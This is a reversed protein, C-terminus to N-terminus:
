VSFRISLIDGDKVTYNKGELRLLGKEKLAKESGYAMLDDYTFCEARIFGRALNSHIVAAANVATDGKHITWARVEDPGVTFFTLYGLVNYALMTLRDRASAQIHMDDMFAKAEETSLHNLEMEFRGAFEIVRHDKTLHTLLDHHKGFNTEDSNLIVLMPKLTLFQFGRLLKQHEPALDSKDPLRDSELYTIIKELAAKEQELVPTKAGRKMQYEIRELRTEALILDSLIIESTLDPYRGTSRAPGHDSM